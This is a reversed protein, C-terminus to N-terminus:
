RKESLITKSLRPPMLNSIMELTTKMFGEEKIEPKLKEFAVGIQEAEQDSLVKKALAFIVTEEEQIHRTLAAKLAKATKKWGVHAKGEVQLSRLLAEAAVHENFSHM